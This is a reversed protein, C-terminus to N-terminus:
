EIRIQCSRNWNEFTREFALDTETLEPRRTDPKEGSIRSPVRGVKIWLKEDLVPAEKIIEIM